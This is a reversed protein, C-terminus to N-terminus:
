CLDRHLELSFVMSQQEAETKGEEVGLKKGEQLIIWKLRGVRNGREKGRFGAILRKVLKCVFFLHTQFAFLHVGTKPNTKRLNHMNNLQEPLIEKLNVEGTHLHSDSYAPIITDDWTLRRNLSM